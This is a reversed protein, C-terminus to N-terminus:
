TWVMITIIRQFLTGAGRYDNLQHATLKLCRVGQHQGTHNETGLSAEACRYVPGDPATEPLHSFIPNATSGAPFTPLDPALLCCFATGLSWNFFIFFLALLPMKSCWVMPQFYLAVFATSLVVHVCVGCICTLNPCSIYCSYFSNGPELYLDTIRCYSYPFLYVFTLCKQYNIRSFLFM